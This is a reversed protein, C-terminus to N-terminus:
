IANHVFSAIRDLPIETVSGITNILRHDVPRGTGTTCGGWIGGLGTCANGLACGPAPGVQSLLKVHTPTVALLVGTFGSGSAGGSITFITVTEGIYRTLYKMWNTGTVPAGYPSYPDYAGAVYGAAPAGYGVGTGCYGDAM